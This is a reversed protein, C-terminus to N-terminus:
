TIHTVQPRAPAAPTHKVNQKAMLLRASRGQGAAKIRASCKEAEVLVNVGDSASRTPGSHSGLVSTDVRTPVVAGLKLCVSM